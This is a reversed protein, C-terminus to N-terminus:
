GYRVRPDLLAYLLDTVLNMVIVLAALVMLVGMVVPYDRGLLTDTLLRGIGPWSFVVETVMAGAVLRPMELGLVTVLPIAVNPLAHRLLLMSRTHGKARATRVYDNQMAESLGAQLYRSWQAVYVSGLVLAPALLHWLVDPLSFPVGISRMGGAPIWRLHVSFVLLVLTGSWFTPVSMGIVALVQVLARGTRSRSWAGVLGLAFGFTLGVALAGGTVWLTNGLRELVVELAPRRERFSLGWDGQLVNGLWRLYQVHLPDNLGWLERLHEVAEPSASPDAAYIDAPGGAPLNILGFLLVSVLFIRPVAGVMRRLAYRWVADASPGNRPM